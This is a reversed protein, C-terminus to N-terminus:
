SGPKEFQELAVSIRDDAWDENKVWVHRVVGDADVLYADGPQPRGFAPTTAQAGPDSLVDYTIASRSLVERLKAPEDDISVVVQNLGKRRHRRHLKELSRAFALGGDSGTEVFVLLLPHGRLTDLRVRNPTAAYTLEVAPLREGVGVPTARPSKLWFFGVAVGVAITAAVLAGLVGNRV